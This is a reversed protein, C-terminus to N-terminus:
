AHATNAQTEGGVALRVSLITNLAFNLNEKQKRFDKKFPRM